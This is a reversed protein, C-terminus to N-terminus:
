HIHRQSPSQRVILHDKPRSPFQTKVLKRGMSIYRSGIAVDAGKIVADYLRELDDPNHSFDADM